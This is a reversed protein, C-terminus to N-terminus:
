ADSIVDCTKTERLTLYKKFIERKRTKKTTIECQATKHEISVVQYVSLARSASPRKITM